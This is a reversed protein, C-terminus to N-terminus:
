IATYLVFNNHNKFFEINNNSIIELMLGNREMLCDETMKRSYLILYNKFTEKLRHTNYNHIIKHISHTKQRSTTLLLFEYTDIGASFMVESMDQEGNKIEVKQRVYPIENMSVSLFLYKKEKNIKESWGGHVIDSIIKYSQLLPDYQTKQLSRDLSQNADDLSVVEDLYRAAKVEVVLVAKTEQDLIMADPSLIRLKKPGAAFEPIYEYNMNTNVECFLRTIDQVYSEFCKGFVSFFNIDENNERHIKHFLNEFILDTAYGGDIPIYEDESLQLFPKDRFLSYDFKNRITKVSFDKAEHLSCSIYNMIKKAVSIEINNNKSFEHINLVWENRELPFYFEKNNTIFTYKCLINYIVCIYSNIDFGVKKEFGDIYKKLLINQIIKTTRFFVIRIDKNSNLIINKASHHRVNETNKDYYDNVHLILKHINKMSSHTNNKKSISNIRPFIIKWCELIQPRGYLRRKSKAYYQRKQPRSIYCLSWKIFHKELSSSFSLASIFCLTDISSFSFKSVPYKFKGTYFDKYSFLININRFEEKKM